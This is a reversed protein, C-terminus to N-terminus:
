QSICYVRVQYKDFTDTFRGSGDLPLSRSVPTQKVSIAKLSDVGNAIPISANVGDINPFRVTTDGTTYNITGIEIRGGSKGNVHNLNAYMKGAGDDFVWIWKGDSAKAGAIMVKGPM